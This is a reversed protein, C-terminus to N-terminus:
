PDQKTADDVISSALAQPDIHYNGSQVAATVEEIRQRREPSDSGLANLSQSLQSLSAEDGAEGAPAAGPKHGPRQNAAANARQLIPDNVYPQNVNTDQVKM